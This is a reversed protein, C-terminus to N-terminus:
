FLLVWSLTSFMYTHLFKVTQVLPMCQLEHATFAEPACTRVSNVTACQRCGATMKM